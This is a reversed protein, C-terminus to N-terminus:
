QLPVSTITMSFFLSQALRVSKLFYQMTPLFRAISEISMIVDIRLLSGDIYIQPTHFFVSSKIKEESM